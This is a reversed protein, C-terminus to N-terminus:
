VIASSAYLNVGCEGNGREIYIYGSEGWDAGWSNKITWYAVKQGIIDIESGYGVILVGHDLSTGCLATLVGGIYFQWVDAAVAVSLPGHQVLYAAMQNEDTSLMTYNSITAGITDKNFSCSNDEAQYPYSEETDIGGNKIIYQYANEMMGGDCGADCEGQFCVHDCDVLNQESLSVLQHGALFWQGEINGTTSFSWCSGCQGQDKVATVAGNTRWDIEDPINDIVEKTYLPAVPVAPDRVPARLTLMKQKFEERSMLAYKNIGFTTKGKSIENLHRVWDLNESFLKVRFRQEEPNNFIVKENAVFQQFLDEIPLNLDYEFKSSLVVAFLVFFIPLTLVTRM